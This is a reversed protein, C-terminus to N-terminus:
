MVCVKWWLFLSILNCTNKLLKLLKRFNIKSAVAFLTDTYQEPFFMLLDRQFKSLVTDYWPTLSDREGTKLTTLFIHLLQMTQLTFLITGNLM